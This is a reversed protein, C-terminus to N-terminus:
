SGSEPPLKLQRFEAESMRAVGMVTLVLRQGGAGGQEYAIVAPPDLNARDNLEVGWVLVYPTGDRPSILIEDSAGYTALHPRLEELSQPPRGLKARADAYAAFLAGLREQEDSNVAPAPRCGTAVMLGLLWIACRTRACLGLDCM